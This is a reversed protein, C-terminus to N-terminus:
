REIGLGGHSLQFKYGEVDECRLAEAAVWQCYDEEGFVGVLLKGLALFM